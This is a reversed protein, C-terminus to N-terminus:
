YGLATQSAVFNAYDSSYWTTYGTSTWTDYDHWSGNYYFRSITHSNNNGNRALKYTLDQYIPVNINDTQNGLGGSGNNFIIRDYTSQVIESYGAGSIKGSMLVGPWSHNNVGTSNNWSYLYPTWSSSGSFFIRIGSGSYLEPVFIQGYNSSSLSLDISQRTSPDGNSFIVKDYNLMDSPSLKYNYINKSSDVLTASAGPWGNSTGSNYLHTYVSGSWDPPLQFYIDCEWQAYLNVVDDYTSSLGSIAQGDTYDTGSGNTETNWKVFTCANRTFTNSTLNKTEDYVYDIDSMTGTGGNANFRVTYHPKIYSIKAYGDGSNGTMYSSGDHTPILLNGTITNGNILLLTNVHGSGGSGAMGGVSGISSNNALKNGGYWGGGAGADAGSYSRIADAGQGFTGYYYMSNGSLQSQEAGPIRIGQYYIFGSLVLPTTRYNTNYYAISDEGNLGGGYGGQSYYSIDASSYSGGGGGAVLLIDNQNNSYNKLEGLNQNVAFHTAGGGSGQTNKNGDSLALGGGNYGGPETLERGANKLENGQCGVVVYIKDGANLNVIGYSYGGRGGEIAAMTKTGNVNESVSGGQAGWAELLYRGTTSATFTKSDETCSYNNLETTEDLYDKNFWQAYLTIVSGNVITAYSIEAGDSYGTGSGDVETNWGIFDYGSKTFTNLSLNQQVGYKVTLDDMSGTGGNANFKITYQTRTVSLKINNSFDSKYKSFTISTFFFIFTFFIQFVLLKKSM